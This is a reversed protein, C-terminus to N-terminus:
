KPQDISVLTADFLDAAKKVLEPLAADTAVGAAATRQARSVDLDIKVNRGTARKVLDAIKDVQTSLYRAIDAGSDDLSLRLTTGDFGDCVLHETRQRDGMSQAAVQLVRPWLEDNSAIPTSAPPSASAPKVEAVLAPRATEMREPMGPPPVNLAPDKKKPEVEAAARM